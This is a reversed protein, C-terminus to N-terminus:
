RKANIVSAIGPIRAPTFISDWTVVFVYLRSSVSVIFVFYGVTPSLNTLSSSYDSLITNYEYPENRM